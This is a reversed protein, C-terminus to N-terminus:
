KLYREKQTEWLEKLTNGMKLDQLANYAFMLAPQGKTKVTMGGGDKETRQVIYAQQIDIDAESSVSFIWTDDIPNIQSGVNYQWGASDANTHASEGGVVGVGFEVFAAHEAKNFIKLRGTEVSIDKHWGTIIENKVSDGIDSMEVRRNAITKIKLYIEELFDKVAKYYNERYQTVQNIANEISKSDFGFKVKM